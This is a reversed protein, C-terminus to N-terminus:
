YKGKIEVTYKELGLLVLITCNEQDLEQEERCDVSLTQQGLTQTAYVSLPLNDRASNLM